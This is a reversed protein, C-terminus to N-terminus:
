ESEDIPCLIDKDRIMVGLLSALNDFSKKGIETKVYIGKGDETKFIDAMHSIGGQQNKFSIVYSNARESWRVLFTGANKNSLKREADDRSIAGKYGFYV